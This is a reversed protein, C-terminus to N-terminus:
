GECKRVTCQNKRNRDASTCKDRTGDKCSRTQRQNGPGCSKDLGTGICGGVNTWVGLEKSCDKLNCPRTRGTHHPQCKENTGDECTRTQTQRGPGCPKDSRLATCSGVNLWPGFKLPCDPLNCSITKMKDSETCKDTTGDVCNRTQRQNGPGCNKDAGSAVCGGDNIWSGIQKPCDPLSCSVSRLRDEPQCTLLEGDTCTRTQKQTGPGCDKKGGMPECISENKWEGLTFCSPLNCEISRETDNKICKDTTGDDCTRTQKLEGKGCTDDTGISKCNGDSIWNGLKKPCDPMNCRAYQEKDSKICLDTTGDSCNRKQYQSGSGCSKEQTDTDCPAADRWFGLTKPCDPLSCPVTQIIDVETCEDNTGDECIRSQNQKGPGCTLDDGDAKCEEYATWNGFTKLCDQLNCSVTQETEIALCKDLSGDTCRRTQTQIGPGCTKDEGIADCTGNNTWNGFRKATKFM